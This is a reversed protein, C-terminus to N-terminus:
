TPEYKLCATLGAYCSASYPTNCHLILVSVLLCYWHLQGRGLGGFDQWEARLCMASCILLQLLMADAETSDSKM